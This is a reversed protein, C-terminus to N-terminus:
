ILFLFASAYLALISASEFGIRWIGYTERTLLGLLLVATMAITLAIILVHDGTMAAYLSGDRYAIDAVALFLVDFANGGIIGGVALTLAGQRVAAISTVLEPLSTTVATMFTGVATESLGTKASIEVAAEALVVGASGAILASFGLDLWVWRANEPAEEDTDPVDHRTEATEEPEWMPDAQVRSSLQLGFLYAGILILSFPSVGLITFPAASMGILPIALLVILLSGQTLNTLSAAAHELNARRYAIDAIALFATQAAIGGIANGIALDAHGFGASLGSLVIGPLSTSAGLFVAGALAEGIGTLDAIRDAAKALRTGAIVIVLATGVFIAILSALSLFSLDVLM